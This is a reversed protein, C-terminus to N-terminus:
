EKVPGSRETPAARASAALGDGCYIGRPDHEEPQSFVVELRRRGPLGSRLLALSDGGRLLVNPPRAGLEAPLDSLRSPRM